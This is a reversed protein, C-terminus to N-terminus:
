KGKPELDHNRKKKKYKIEKMKIKSKSLQFTCLKQNSAFM